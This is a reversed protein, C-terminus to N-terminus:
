VVFFRSLIYLFLVEWVNLLLFSMIRVGLLLSILLTLSATIETKQQLCKTFKPVPLLSAPVPGYSPFDLSIWFICFKSLHKSGPGHLCLILGSSSSHPTRRSSPFTLHCSNMLFLGFYFPHHLFVTGSVQMSYEQSESQNNLEAPISHDWTFSFPFMICPLVNSYIVNPQNHINLELWGALAVMSFLWFM